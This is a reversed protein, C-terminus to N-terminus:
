ARVGERAIERNTVIWEALLRDRTAADTGKCADALERVGVARVGAAPRYGTCINLGAVTYVDCNWGYVGATYYAPTIGSLADQLDCYGVRVTPRGVSEAERICRATVRQKTRYGYAARERRIDDLADAIEAAREVTETETEAAPATETTETTETEAAPATWGEPVTVVPQGPKPRSMTETCGIVERGKATYYATAQEASEAIVLNASYIDNGNSYTIEYTKMTHDKGGERTTEPEAATETTEVEADILYYYGHGTKEDDFEFECIENYLRGNQRIYTQMSYPKSRSICHTGDRETDYNPESGAAFYDLDLCGCFADGGTAKLRRRVYALFQAPTVNRRQIEITYNAKM